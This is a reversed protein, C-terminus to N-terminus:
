PRAERAIQDARLCAALRGDSMAAMPPPGGVDCVGSRAHPCRPHFPCGPPVEAASPVSGAISPLRRGKRSLSPLSVLLGRTYPHRPDKMLPRIDAQEVIRGLYM